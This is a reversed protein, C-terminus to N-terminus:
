KKLLKQLLARCGKVVDQYTMEFDGTYWPDAVERHEKAWDLLLSVKKEPDDHTLFDLDELNETDMCIIYDAQEYDAMTLLRAKRPSFPIGKQALLRRAPPYMDHGVEETTAALSSIIFQESAGAKRALDKMVFEAMPSRCINGHCVFILHIPTPTM